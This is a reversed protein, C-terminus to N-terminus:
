LLPLASEKTDQIIPTEARRAYDRIVQLLTAKRIPKTVHADCGVEIARAADESLAAATLAVINTRNTRHEREWERIALTAAYGDMVPMQIDMLVLDYQNLVFKDFAALGNEAFDLNCKSRRLYASILLRNDPSDEAILISAEPMDAADISSSAIRTVPAVPHRSKADSLV